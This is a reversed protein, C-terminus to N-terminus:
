AAAATSTSTFFGSLWPYVATPAYEYEPPPGVGVGVGVGVAVGVSVGDAVGTREQLKTNFPKQRCRVELSGFPSCSGKLLGCLGHKLVWVPQNALLVEAVNGCTAM